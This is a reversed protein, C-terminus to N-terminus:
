PLYRGKRTFRYLGYESIRNYITKPSVGLMKAALRKNGDCAELVQALQEKEAETFPSPNNRRRYLGLRIPPGNLIALQPSAQDTEIGGEPM